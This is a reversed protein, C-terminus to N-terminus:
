HERGSQPKSLLQISASPLVTPSNASDKTHIPKSAQGPNVGPAQTVQTLLRSAGLRWPHKECQPMSVSLIFLNTLRM